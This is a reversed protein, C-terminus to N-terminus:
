REFSVLAYPKKNEDCLSVVIRSDEKHILPVIIDHLKAQQRYEVRLISPEFDEPLYQGAMHVYQGNNVHHNTDLQSHSIPFSDEETNDEPMQMKRPFEKMDLKTEMIYGDVDEPLIKAPHSSKTDILAWISNVRALCEGDPTEMTYNRNGYFAKFLYPWTRTVIHEGLVPRRLIEVQWSLIMWAKGTDVAYRVGRGLSESHFTSCDQFYDIMSALELRGDAGIESYRVRSDFQYSM